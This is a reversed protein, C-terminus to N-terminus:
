TLEQSVFKSASNAPAAAALSLSISHAIPARCVCVCVCVCVGGTKELAASGDTKAPDFSTARVTLLKVKDTARVTAIANGAYIPRQFVDESEISTM